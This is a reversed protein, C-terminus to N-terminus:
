AAVLERAARADRWVTVGSVRLVAAIAADDLGVLPERLAEAIVARDAPQLGAPILGSLHLLKVRTGLRTVPVGARAEVAAALLKALGRAGYRGAYRVLDHTEAQPIRANTMTVACAQMVRRVGPHPRREAPRVAAIREAVDARVSAVVGAVIRKLTGLPVGSASAIEPLTMGRNRLVAVHRQVVAVDVKQPGTGLERRARRRREYAAHRARHAELDTVVRRAASVAAPDAGGPIRALLDNDNAFLASAIARDERTLTAADM